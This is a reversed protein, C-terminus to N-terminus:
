VAHETDSHSEANNVEMNKSAQVVSVASKGLIFSVAMGVIIYINDATMGWKYEDNLVILISGILAVWLKSSKLKELFPAFQGMGNTDVVSQGLIFSIFLSGIGIISEANLEWGLQQNLVLIVSGLITMGLKRSLFKSKMKQFRRSLQFIEKMRRISSAIIRVRSLAAQSSSSNKTQGGTLSPVPKGRSLPVAWESVGLHEMIAQLQATVAQLQAEIRELRDEEFIRYRKPIRKRLIKRIVRVNYLAMFSIIITQVNLGHKTINEATRIFWEIFDM